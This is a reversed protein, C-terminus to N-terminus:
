SVGYLCLLRLGLIIVLAQLNWEEDHLRSLEKKLRPEGELGTSSLFVVFLFELDQMCALSCMVASSSAVAEQLFSWSIIEASNYTM